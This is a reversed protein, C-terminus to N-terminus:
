RNQSESQEKLVAALEAKADDSANLLGSLADCAGRLYEHEQIFLDKAHEGDGPQFPLGLKKTAFAALETKIHAEQLSTLVVASPHEEESFEFAEFPTDIKKM